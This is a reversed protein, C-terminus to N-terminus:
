RRRDPLGEREIIDRAMSLGVVRHARAVRRTPGRDLGLGTMEARAIVDEILVVLRDRERRKIDDREVKTM